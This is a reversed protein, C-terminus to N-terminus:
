EIAGTDRLWQELDMALEAPAGVSVEHGSDYSPFRIPKTGEGLRMQGPRTAGEPLTEDIEGPFGHEEFYYALAKSYVVSDYRANTIFTETRALVDVFANLSENDGMFYGCPTVRPLWYADLAAVSGLTAHLASEQASVEALDYQGGADREVDRRDAAALLPVETMPVGFLLQFNTPDRMVRASHAVLLAGEEESRRVDYADHGPDNLYPLLFPDTEMFSVQYAAQQGGFVNPQILLQHGFQKAVEGPPLDADSGRARQLHERMRGELWPVHGAFDPAGPWPEAGAYHQLMYLMLAARTGGYSEGVLVVRNNVLPQHQDLFELVVHLFSAADRLALAEDCRLDALDYSYGSAPADIYLLNAFRTHSSANPTPPADLDSAPDLSYPGTGYPALLSTTATGPGGNFYVLVPAREPHEDAPMFSYFVRSRGSLGIESQEIFGAEAEMHAPPEVESGGGEGDEGGGQGGGQGGSDQGGASEEPPDAASPCALLGLSVLSLGLRFFSVLQWHSRRPTWM